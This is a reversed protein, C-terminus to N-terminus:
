FFNIQEEAITSNSNSIQVEINNSTNPAVQWSFITKVPQPYLYTLAFNSPSKRVFVAQPLYLMYINRFPSSANESSNVRDFNKKGGKQFPIWELLFSSSGSPLLNKGKLTSRKGLKPTYSVLCSTLFTIKSILYPLFDALHKRDM